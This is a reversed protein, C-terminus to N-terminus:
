GEVANRFQGIGLALIAILIMSDARIIGAETLAVLAASGLILYLLLQILNGIFQISQLVLPLPHPFTVAVALIIGLAM